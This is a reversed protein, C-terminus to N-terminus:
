VLRLIPDLVAVAGAGGVPRVPAALVTVGLGIVHAVPPEAVLHVAAPLDPRQRGLIVDLLRDFEGLHHLPGIGPDLQDTTAVVAPGVPVDLDDFPEGGVDVVM